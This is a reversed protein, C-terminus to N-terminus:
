QKAEGSDSQLKKLVDRVKPALPDNPLIKLFAQLEDVAETNRKQRLYLNVLALHAKALKPDLELSRQLEKEAQRSDGSASVLSGRLFHGFASSPEKNLGQNVWNLGEDYHHTLYHLNGLNFYAAADNSNLSIARRFQVEADAYSGRNLYATGLNNCAPYFDPAIHLAKEYHKIAEDPQHHNDAKVGTDFEKIAARPFLKKLDASSTLHPNGGSVTRSDSKEPNRLNLFINIMRVSTTEPDISVTESAPLYAEDNVKIQYINGPLGNFGFRGEGDTYVTNVVTGRSELSILVPSPLETGPSVKVQGVISGGSVQARLMIPFLFLALGALLPPLRRRANFSRHM